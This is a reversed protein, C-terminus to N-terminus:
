ADDPTSRAAARRALTELHAPPTAPVRRDLAISGRAKLDGHGERTLERLDSRNVVDRVPRLLRKVQSYALDAVGAATLLVEDVAGDRKASL